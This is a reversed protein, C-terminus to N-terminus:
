RRHATRRPFVLCYDVFACQHSSDPNFSTRSDEGRYWFAESREKIHRCRQAAPYSAGLKEKCEDGQWDLQCWDLTQMFSHEGTQMFHNQWEFLVSLVGFTRSCFLPRINIHTNQLCTYTTVLSLGSTKKISHETSPHRKWHAGLEVKQKKNKCFKNGSSRLKRWIRISVM